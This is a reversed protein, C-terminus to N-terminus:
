LVEFLYYSAIKLYISRWLSDTTWVKELYQDLKEQSFELLGDDKRLFVGILRVNPDTFYDEADFNWGAGESLLHGWKKIHHPLLNHPCWANAIFGFDFGAGKYDEFNMCHVTANSVQDRIATTYSVNPDVFTILAQPFAIRLSTDWWCAPYIINEPEKFHSRYVTFCEVLDKVIETRATIENPWQINLLYPDIEIWDIRFTWPTQESM